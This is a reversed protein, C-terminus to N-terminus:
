IGFQKKLASYAKEVGELLLGLNAYYDGKVGSQELAARALEVAYSMLVGENKRDSSVTQAQATEEILRASDINRYTIKGKQVENYELEYTLGEQIDISVESGDKNRLFHSYFDGEMDTIRVAIERKERKAVTIIKKM